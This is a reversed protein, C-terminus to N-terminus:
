KETRARVRVGRVHELRFFITHRRSGCAHLLSSTVAGQTGVDFDLVGIKLDM